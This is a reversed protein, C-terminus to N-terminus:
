VEAIALLAPSYHTVWGNRTESRGGCKLSGARQLWPGGRPIRKDASDTLGDEKGKWRQAILKFSDGCRRSAAFFCTQENIAPKAIQKRGKADPSSPARILVRRPNALFLSATTGASPNSPLTCINPLLRSSPHGVTMQV